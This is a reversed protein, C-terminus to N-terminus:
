QDEMNLKTYVLRLAGSSQTRNAASAYIRGTRYIFCNVKSRLFVSEPWIGTHHLPLMNPQLGFPTLEFRPWPSKNRFQLKIPFIGNQLFPTSLELRKPEM